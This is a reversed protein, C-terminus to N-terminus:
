HADGASTAQGDETKVYPEGLPTIEKSKTLSTFTQDFYEAADGEEPM